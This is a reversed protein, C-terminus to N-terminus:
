KHGVIDVETGLREQSLITAPQPKQFFGLGPIIVDLLFALRPILCTNKLLYTSIRNRNGSMVM